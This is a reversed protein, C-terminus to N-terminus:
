CNGPYCIQEGFENCYGHNSNTVDCYVDCLPMRVDPDDSGASYNDYYHRDCEYWVTLQLRFLYPVNQCLNTVEFGPFANKKGGADATSTM